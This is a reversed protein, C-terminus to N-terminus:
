TADTALVDELLEAFLGTLDPDAADAEALYEAFLDTPSRQFDDLEWAPTAEESEDDDPRAITVDVATPFRERVEDALGPRRPETVVIRLHARALEDAREALEAVTGRVTRLPVGATLDVQRVTAPLGPEVEVVLVAKHDSEVEGFDLHLPSGCYWIPCPGPIQHPQHLHGLAAYQTSPPFVGPPIVYDFITHAAREGGGLVPQGSAVTLHAAVLNVTDAGFGATLTTLIQRAREAYRQAHVDGRHAMLQEAKVIGRQSLFPVLAIRAVEGSRMTLDLVGGQDPPLVDSAVHVDSRDLLPRIAHWRRPNDHNGALVVVQAGTGVLDLLARYVIAEAEPTPAPNDFADGTVLVLDVAEEAAIGVIEALVERHERARSRGRIARGVHWDSTHLLKM